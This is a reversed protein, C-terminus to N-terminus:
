EWRANWSTFHTLDLLCPSVALGSSCRPLYNGFSIHLPHETLPSLHRRLVLSGTKTAKEQNQQGTRTDKNKEELVMTLSILKSHHPILSVMLSLSLKKRDMQTPLSIGLLTLFSTRIDTFSQATLVLVGTDLHRWSEAAMHVCSRTYPLPVECAM